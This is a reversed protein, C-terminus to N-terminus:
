PIPSSKWYIRAAGFAARTAVIAGSAARTM